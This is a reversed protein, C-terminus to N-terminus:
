LLAQLSRNNTLAAALMQARALSNVVGLNLNLQLISKCGGVAMMVDHFHEDKVHCERLLLLRVNHGALAECIEKIEVSSLREGSMQISGLM